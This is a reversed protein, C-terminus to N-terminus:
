FGVNDVLMLCLGDDFMMLWCLGVHFLLISWCLLCLDMMLRVDDVLIM